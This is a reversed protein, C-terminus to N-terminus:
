VVNQFGRSIEELKEERRGEEVSEPSFPDSILCLHSHSTLGKHFLGDLKHGVPSDLSSYHIYM